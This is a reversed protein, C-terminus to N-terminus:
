EFNSESQLGDPRCKARDLHIEAIDKLSYPLRPPRRSAVRKGDPLHATWLGNSCELQLIKKKAKWCCWNRRLRINSCLTIIFVSLRSCLDEQFGSICESPQQKGIRTQVHFGFVQRVSFPTRVTNGRRGSPHV